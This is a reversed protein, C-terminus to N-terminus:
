PQWYRIAIGRSAADSYGTRIVFTAEKNNISYTGSPNTYEAGFTTIYTKSIGTGSYVDVKYAEGPRWDAYGFQEILFTYNITGSSLKVEKVVEDMSHPPWMLYGRDNGVDYITDSVNTYVEDYLLDDPKKSGGFPIEVADVTWGGSRTNMGTGYYEGGQNYKYVVLNDLYIWNDQPSLRDGYAGEFFYMWRIMDVKGFDAGQAESRIKMGGYRIKLVGDEYVEIFGDPQGPTNVHIRYNVRIWKGIPLAITGSDGRAHGAEWAESGVPQYFPYGMLNSGLVLGTWGGMTGITSTSDEPISSVADTMYFGGPYKSSRGGDINEPDFDGACMFDYQMWLDSATDGIMIMLNMSNEGEEPVYSAWVRGHGTMGYISQQGPVYWGMIPLRHTLSDYSNVSASTWTEFDEYFYFHIQPENFSSKRFYVQYKDKYTLRNVGDKYSLLTAVAPTDYTDFDTYNRGSGEHYLWTIEAQTLADSWFGLEDIYGSLYMESSSAMGIYWNYADDFNSISTTSDERVGNVYIKIKSGDHVITIMQWSSVNYVDDVVSVGNHDYQWQGSSNISVRDVGANKDLLVDSTKSGATTYYWINVSGTNVTLPIVPLSVYDNSGDLYLGYGLLGNVNIAAGNGLTTNDYNSHIDILPSQQFNYYAVLSDLLAGSGAAEASYGWIKFAFDYSSNHSWTTGQDTSTCLVGGTYSGAADMGWRLGYLETNVVVLAYQTNPQLEYSSMDITKFAIDGIDSSWGTSTSSGSSLPTGTPEQDGDVNMIYVNFPGGTASAYAYIQVSAVTFAENTGTNGVTFSQAAAYDGIAVLVTNTSYGTYSEYVVSDGVQVPPEEDPTYDGGEWLDGRTNSSAGYGTVGPDGSSIYTDVIKGDTDIGTDLVGNIYFMLTDEYAVMRITDDVQFATGTSSLEATGGAMTRVVYATSNNSYWGYYYGGGASSMRVGVGIYSNVSIASIVLESYQDNTFTGNYLTGCENGSTNSYVEGDAAPKNVAQTGLASVWDGQGGLTAASYSDFNDTTQGIVSLTAFSALIFFLRKM